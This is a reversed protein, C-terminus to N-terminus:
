GAQGAAAQEKDVAGRLVAPQQIVGSAPKQLGAPERDLGLGGGGGLIGVVAQRKEM